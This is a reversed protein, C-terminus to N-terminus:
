LHGLAPPQFQQSHRASLIRNNEFAVRAALQAVRAAAYFRQVPQIGVLAHDVVSAEEFRQAAEHVDAVEDNRSRKAVNETFESTSSYRRRRSREQIRDCLEDFFVLIGRM